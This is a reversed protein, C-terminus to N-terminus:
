FNLFQHPKNGHNNDKARQKGKELQVELLL